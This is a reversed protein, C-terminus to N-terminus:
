HSETDIMVNAPKIDRHVIGKGHAYALATCVQELISLAQAENLGAQRIIEQLNAGEVFEMVIFLHGEATTGFEFVTIINPHHLKAMARAERRFRDVFDRDVSIERPLLKIAVLRDLEIQRAKYVAGM